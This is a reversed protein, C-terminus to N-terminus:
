SVDWCLLDWLLDLIRCFGVDVFRGSIVDGYFGGIGLGGSFVVMGWFGCM